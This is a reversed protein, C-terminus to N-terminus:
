RGTATFIDLINLIGRSVIGGMSLPLQITGVGVPFDSAFDLKVLPLYQTYVNAIIELAQNIKAGRDLEMTVGGPESYRWDRISIPLFSNALATLQGLGVLFFEHERPFDNLSFDTQPPYCNFIQVALTLGSLFDEDTMTSTPSDKIIDPTARKIAGILRSERPTPDFFTTNFCSEFPTTNALFVVLYYYGRNGGIDSYSTIVNAGSGSPVEDVQAYGTDESSSRFIRIADIDARLAIEKPVTWRVRVGSALDTPSCGM